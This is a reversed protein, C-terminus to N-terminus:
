DGLNFVVNITTEVDVPEDNLLYPRYRWARVADMAPGQLMVPGSLVHLDTITGAKSIIAHLEVTGSVRAAKAIAPYAPTTKQLLMGEEVGSSVPLPAFRIRGGRSKNFVGVNASNGGLGEAGAAGLSEVPPASDTVQNRADKPIMRPAELQDNMMELQAETLPPATGAKSGEHVQQNDTAPQRQATAAPQVETAPESAQQAPGNEAIQSDATQAAPQIVPRSAAKAGHHGMSVILILPLLVSCGAAAGIIVWKRKATSEEDVDELNKGSFAGFLGNDSEPTSSRAVESADPQEELTAAGPRSAANPTEEAAHDDEQSRPARSGGGDALEVSMKQPKAFVPESLEPWPDTGVELLRAMMAERDAEPPAPKANKGTGSVADDERLDENLRQAAAKQWKDFEDQPKVLVPPKVYGNSTDSRWVRPKNEFSDLIAELYDTQAAPKQAEKQGGAAEWEDPGGAAPAQAAESDWDGFDSPLTDPLLRAVEEASAM